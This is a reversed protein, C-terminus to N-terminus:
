ADVQEGCLFCEHWRDGDVGREMWDHLGIACDFAEEEACSPSYPCTDCCASVGCRGM